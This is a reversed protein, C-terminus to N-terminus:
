MSGKMSMAQKVAEGSYSGHNKMKKKKDKMMKKMEKDSMMHKDMM